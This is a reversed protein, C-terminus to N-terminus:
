SEKGRKGRLNFLKGINPLSIGLKLAQYFQRDEVDQFSEVPEFTPKSKGEKNTTKKKLGRAIGYIGLGAVALSACVELVPLNM